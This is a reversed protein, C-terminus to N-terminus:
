GDLLALLQERGPGPLPRRERGASVAHIREAVAPSAFTESLPRLCARSELLARFLDPDHPVATMLAARLAANTGVPQEPERGERLAEIERLRDRDEAVTERYWPTLEAETVADWRQAFELPDHLHSRVVDPLRRAHLLGLTIGRGLSPNTCACADALLALGTVVPRGDVVLRRYRDVIGSMASVGGVPEGDLWHAHTPCAAVVSRLRAPDRLRKLPQDGTAIVATVSWTGGDAPLTLVTLSGLPVVLPARPQPLVGNSSRFCQTYYIFGCDEAEEHLAPVGAAALLRPLRSGRGMADVVLDARLQAGSRTRVGTVHPTDGGSALELGSITTGRRVDVGPEDQAARAVVQEITPRRATLTVLREDGSRPTRDTISPPMLCLPDFRLGGAAALAASVDPLAEDLVARGGAQLYHPQRFQAVGERSWGDWAEQPGDPVPQEDRELVTVAHGDRALLMAAALGCVGGGMVIVSAM